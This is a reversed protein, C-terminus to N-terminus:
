ARPPSEVVVAPHGALRVQTGKEAFAAGVRAIAVYGTGEPERAVSTVEGIPKGDAESVISGSAVDDRAFALTVLRRKVKGRMDQMCVAEQGLYCGKTWSVARREMSADHPSSKESFDRGFAPLLHRVRFGEWEDPSALHVGASAQVATALVDLESRPVLVVAGGAPTFSLASSRWGARGAVLREAAASAGEGHLTAWSWANTAEAVEADEMILFADLWAVVNNATGPSV